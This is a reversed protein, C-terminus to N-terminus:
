GHGVPAGRLFRRPRQAGDDHRVQTSLHTSATAAAHVRGHCTFLVAATSTRMAGELASADAITVDPNSRVVWEYADFWGLRAAVVM